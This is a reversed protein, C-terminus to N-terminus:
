TAHGLKLIGAGHTPDAHSLPWPPPTGQISTTADLVLCIDKGNQM